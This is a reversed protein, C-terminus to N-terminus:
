VQCTLMSSTHVLMSTSVSSVTIICSVRAFALRTEVVCAKKHCAIWYPRKSDYNQEESAGPWRVEQGVCVVASPMGWQDYCEISKM